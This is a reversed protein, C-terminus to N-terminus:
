YVKITANILYGDMNHDQYNIKKVIPSIREFSIDQCVSMANIFDVMESYLPVFYKEFRTPEGTVGSEQPYFVESVESHRGIFIDAQFTSFDLGVSEFTPAIKMDFLQLFTTNDGENEKQNIGSLFGHAFGWGQLNAYNNIETVLYELKNM